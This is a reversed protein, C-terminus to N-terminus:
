RRRYVRPVYFGGSNSCGRSAICGSVPPPVTAPSQPPATTPYPYGQLPGITQTRFGPLEPTYPFPYTYQAHAPMALMTAVTALIFRRM